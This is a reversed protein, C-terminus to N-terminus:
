VQHRGRRGGRSEAVARGLHPVLSSGFFGIPIFAAILPPLPRYPEAWLRVNCDSGDVMVGPYIRGLTYDEPYDICATGKQADADESAISVRLYYDDSISTAEAMITPGDYGRDAERAGVATLFGVFAFFAVSAVLAGARLFPFPNPDYDGPGLPDPTLLQSFAEPRRLGEPNIARQAPYLVNDGVRIVVRGFPRPSGKVLVPFAASQAPLTRGVGNEDVWRSTILRVTCLPLSGAGADVPYLHARLRGTWGGEAVVCVMAFAQGSSRALRGSQRVSWWRVGTSIIPFLPLWIYTSVEYWWDNGSGPVIVADPNNRDIMAAVQGGPQPRQSPDSIPISVEVRQLTVPHDYIFPVDRGGDYDTAIDATVSIARDATIIAAQEAQAEVALGGVVPPVLLFLWALPALVWRRLENM